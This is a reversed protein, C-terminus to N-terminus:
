IKNNMQDLVQKKWVPDMLQNNEIAHKLAVMTETSKAEMAQSLQDFAYWITLPHGAFFTQYRGDMFGNKDIDKIEEVVSVVVGFSKNQYVLKGQEKVIIEFEIKGKIEQPKDPVKNFGPRTNKKGKLKRYEEELNNKIMIEKRTKLGDEMKYALQRIDHLWASLKGVDLSNTKISKDLENISDSILACITEKQKM